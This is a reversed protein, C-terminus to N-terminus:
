ADRRDCDDAINDLTISKTAQTAANGALDSVDATITITGNDLASIDAEAGTLTWANSTVTTTATVTANSADTFVVTVTRGDEVGVTTGSVVVDADEAANVINDGELTADIAITPATNDLTISKTAQTAANGALDSVDATITITGNDLASIDAEAGTLTWANSTVTTTATVTANSADTFVVTVTRGDEVGVTTGSVVVDADEAANVINDGELTADIAITPATNDLTISKTAQTAANGALDSVDATITITGNDLASIDAEAGTLTWANSTVTTTATVTANSADTFVVTVTRGDEVGVTAVVVTVDFRRRLVLSM